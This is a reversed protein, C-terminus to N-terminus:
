PASEAGWHRRLPQSISIRAGKSQRFHNIMDKVLKQALRDSVIKAPSSNAEIKSLLGIWKKIITPIFKTLCGETPHVELMKAMEPELLSSMLVSPLHDALHGPLADEAFDLLARTLTKGAESPAAQRRICMALHASGDAANLPLLEERLGLLHGVVKWHHMYAEAEAQTLPTGALKMGEIMTVCFTLLTASMDEQNIPKGWNDDWKESPIFQRIAAHVLRVKLAADVAMGGETLNGPSMIDLVFQGTEGVRRNFKKRGTAEDSLRGTILLVQAGKEFSYLTPLSKYFLFLLFKPGHNIFVEEALRIKEPDAWDPLNRNSEVFARLEIPLRATHLGVHGILMDFLEKAKNRGHKQLFAAIVEDAPPDTFQRMEDLFQDTLPKIEPAM